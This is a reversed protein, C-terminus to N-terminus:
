LLWDISVVFALKAQVFRGLGVLELQFDHLDEKREFNKVKNDLILQIGKRRTLYIFKNTQKPIRRLVLKM